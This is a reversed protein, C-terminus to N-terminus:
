TDIFLALNLGQVTGSRQQGHAGSLYLTAGVIIDAMACGTQEGSQIGLRALDDSLGLPPMAALLKAAKEVGKFGVHRCLQVDVQDQVVVSGM